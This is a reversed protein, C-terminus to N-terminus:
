CSFLLLQLITTYTTCRHVFVMCFIKTHYQAGKFRHKQIFPFWGTGTNVHGTVTSCFEQVPQYALVPLWLQRTQGSTWCSLMQEVVAEM